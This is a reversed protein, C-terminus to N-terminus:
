RKYYTTHKIICDNYHFQLLTYTVPISMTMAQGDGRITGVSERSSSTDAGTGIGVSRGNM